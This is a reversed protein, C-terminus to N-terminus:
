KFNRLAMGLALTFFNFDAKFEELNLSSKLRFKDSDFALLEINHGLHHNLSDIMGKLQASGGTVLIKDILRNEQTEYFNFSVKLERALNNFIPELSQILNDDFSKLKIEEAEKFDKNLVESIKKTFDGGGIFIDRSLVLLGDEIIDLSSFTAGLNIVACVKEKINTTFEFYNAIALPCVDIFSLHYGLERCLSIKNNVAEKKAAAILVLMKGTNKNKKLITFDFNVEEKKFPIYRELEFSMSREAEEQSMMPINVYRLAVSQGSISVALEKKKITLKSLVKKIADKIDAEIIERSFGTINATQGSQELSVAKVYASGIDLGIFTNKSSLFSPKFLQKLRSRFLLSIDKFKSKM